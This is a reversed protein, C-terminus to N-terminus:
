RKHLEALTPTEDWDFQMDATAVLRTIKKSRDNVVAPQYVWGQGSGPEIARRVMTSHDAFQIVLDRAVGLFENDQDYNANVALDVFESWRCSYNGKAGGIFFIDDQHLNHSKMFDLTEKLFNVPNM